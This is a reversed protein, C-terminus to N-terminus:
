PIVFILSIRGWDEWDGFNWFDRNLREGTGAARFIPLRTAYAGPFTSDSLRTVPPGNTSGDDRIGFDLEM